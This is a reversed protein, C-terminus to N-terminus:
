TRHRAVAADSVASVRHELEERSRTEEIQEIILTGVTEPITHEDEPDGPRFLPLVAVTKSHSDDIYAQVAEEVQPAMDSTDGSYWVAEGTRMVATALRGLLAVTNSRKDFTDQGSIAEM